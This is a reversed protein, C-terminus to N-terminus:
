IAETNDKSSCASLTVLVSLTILQFTKKSLIILRM